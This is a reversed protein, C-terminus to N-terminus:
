VSITFSSNTGFTLLKKVFLFIREVTQLFNNFACLVHTPFQMSPIFAPTPLIVYNFAFICLTPKRVVAVIAALLAVIALITMLRRRSTTSRSNVSVYNSNQVLLTAINHLNWKIKILFCYLFWNYKHFLQARAWWFKLVCVNFSM